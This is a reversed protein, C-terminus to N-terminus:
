DGQVFATWDGIFQDMTFTMAKFGHEPHHLGIMLSGDSFLLGTGKGYKVSLVLEIDDNIVGVLSKLGEAALTDVVVTAM